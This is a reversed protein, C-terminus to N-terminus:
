LLVAAPSISNLFAQWFTTYISWLIVRLAKEARLIIRIWPFDVDLIAWIVRLAKRLELTIRDQALDQNSM